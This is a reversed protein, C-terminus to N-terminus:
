RYSGDDVGVRSDVPLALMEMERIDMSNHRIYRSCEEIDSPVPGFQLCTVRVDLRNRRRFVLGFRCSACLASNVLHREELARTKTYLNVSNAVSVDESM